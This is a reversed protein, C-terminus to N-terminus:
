RNMMKKAFRELIDTSPHNSLSILKNALAVPILAGEYIDCKLKDINLLIEHINRLDSLEPVAYYKNHDEVPITLVYLREDRSKYIFKGSYYSTSAYGSQSNSPIIYSYIHDNNLLLVQGPNLKDKIQKAHDVFAGSNEVGVINIRNKQSLFNLLKQMPKHMNATVDNFSLPGNKVFLFQNILDGDIELLSKITHILLFSEIVSGTNKIISLAGTENDVKEFLRFFDTIYIEKNCNTHTCNWSFTKFDIKDKELDIDKTGCHPCKSLTITPKKSKPDYLEFLFWYLTQNIPTKGSHKKYFFAHIAERVSTFFDGGKKLAVNKTPLVLKEREISKLKKIDSPAVFPKQRMEELDSTRILLSGFQFFTILSSPFSKKVPITSDEGEVSIIYEIRNNDPYQIDHVFSPNLDVDEGDVPIECSKLYKKVDEDNIIFSHSIKSGREFNSGEM